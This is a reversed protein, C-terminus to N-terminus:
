ADPQYYTDRTIEMLVNDHWSGDNSREYARLTGVVRFGAKEYARIGKPNDAAPDITVRHHNLVDFAYRTAHRIAETGLGQGQVNPSLFLDFGAHRYDPDLEQWVQLGGIVQDDLVITYGITADDRDIFDEEVEDASAYEGWRRQIDDENLLAYLAPIDDVETPRLTLREGHLVLPIRDQREGSNSPRRQGLGFM